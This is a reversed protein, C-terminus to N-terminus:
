APCLVSQWRYERKPQRLYEGSPTHKQLIPGSCPGCAPWGGLAAPSRADGQRNYARWADRSCVQDPPDVVPYSPRCTAWLWQTPRACGRRSYARVPAVNGAPGRFVLAPLPPSWYHEQSVEMELCDGADHPRCSNPHGRSQLVHPLWYSSAYAAYIAIWPLEIQSNRTDQTDFTNSNLCEHQRACILFLHFQLPHYTHPMIVVCINHIRWRTRRSRCSVLMRTTACWQHIHKIIAFYKYQEHGCCFIVIFKLMFFRQVTLAYHHNGRTVMKEYVM